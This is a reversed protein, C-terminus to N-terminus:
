LFEGIKLYKDIYYSYLQDKSSGGSVAGPLARRLINSNGDIVWVTPVGNIRTKSSFKDESDLFTAANFSSAMARLRTLEDGGVIVKMGVKPSSKLRDHLGNLFGIASKCAPCWPTVYVVVCRQKQDCPDAQYGGTAGSLNVMAMRGYGFFGYQYAIFISLLLAGLVYRQTLMQLATKIAQSLDAKPLELPEKIAPSHRHLECSDCLRSSPGVDKGCKPCLM